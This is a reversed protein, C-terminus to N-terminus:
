KEIEWEEKKLAGLESKGNVILVNNRCVQSNNRLYGKSFELIKFILIV